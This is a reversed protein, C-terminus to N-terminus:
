KLTWTVPADTVEVDGGTRATSFKRHWGRVEPTRIEIGPPNSGDSWTAAEWNILAVEESSSLVTYRLVLRGSGWRQLIELPHDTERLPCEGHEPCVAVLNCTEDGPDRCCEIVDSCTTDPTVPVDTSSGDGIVKVIMQLLLLSNPSRGIPNGGCICFLCSKHVSSPRPPRLASPFISQLDTAM